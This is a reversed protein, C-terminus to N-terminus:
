YQADIHVDKDIRVSQNGYHIMIRLVWNGGDAVSLNGSFTGAPGEALAVQPLVRLTEARMMQATVTAGHVPAGTKDTLIVHLPNPVGGRRMHLTGDVEVKWGLVRLKHLEKLQETIANAANEDHRTLGSFATDVTKNGINPLFWSAVKPPLGNTSISVFAGNVLFVVLFFAIMTKITWHIGSTSDKKRQGAIMTLGTATALFIALHISIRDLTMGRFLSYGLLSFSPIAASVVGRWYNTVGAKGLIIHLLAVVVAGGFLTVMLNM